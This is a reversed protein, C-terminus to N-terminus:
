VGYRERLQARNVREAIPPPGDSQYRSIRARFLRRTAPDRWTDAEFWWRRLADLLRTLNGDRRAQEFAAGLDADYRCPTRTPTRPWSPGSRPPLPPSADRRATSVADPATM